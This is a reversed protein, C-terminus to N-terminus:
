EKTEVSEPEARKMFEKTRRLYDSGNTNSIGMAFGHAMGLWYARASGSLQMALDRYNEYQERQSGTM